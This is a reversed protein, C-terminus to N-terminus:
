LNKAKSIRLWIPMFTAWPIVILVLPLIVGPRPFFKTALFIALTFNMYALSISSTQRIDKSEHRFAYYGALHLVLIFAYLLALTILLGLPNSAMKLIPGAQKAVAGAILLGLLITSFTKTYPKVAAIARKGVARVIMALAFPVFIVLVLQMFMSSAEVTIQTSYLLKTLLPVTFPALLSTTITLVMAVSQKGGAIEVLLPATMGVPMAALMYLAFAFDSRWPLGLLWVAIPFGLLMLFNALLLFRWDKLNELVTKPEVKLCSIFFIAQLLLTNWAILATAQPVFLGVAIALLMTILYAQAFIKQLM